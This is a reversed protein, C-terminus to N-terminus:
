IHVGIRCCREKSNVMGVLIKDRCNCPVGGLGDDILFCDYIAVELHNM